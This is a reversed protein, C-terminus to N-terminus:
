CGPRCDDRQQQRTEAGARLSGLRNGRWVRVERCRRLRFSSGFGLRLEDRGGLAIADSADPRRNQDVALPREPEHEIGACVCEARVASAASASPKGCDAVSCITNCPTVPDAVTGVINASCM